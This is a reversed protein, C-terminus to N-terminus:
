ENARVLGKALLNQGLTRLDELLKPVPADFEEALATAAEELCASAQLVEIMRAGTSDLGFYRGSATDLIVLEGDVESCSVSDCFQYM